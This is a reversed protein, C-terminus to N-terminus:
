FGVPVSAQRGVGDGCGDDLKRFSGRGGFGVRGPVVRMVDHAGEGWIEGELVSEGDAVDDDRGDGVLIVLDLGLPQLVSADTDVDCPVLIELGVNPVLHTARTSRSSGKARASM